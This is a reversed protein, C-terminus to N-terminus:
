ETDSGQSRVCYAIAIIDCVLITYILKKTM